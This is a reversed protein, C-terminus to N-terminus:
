GSVDVSDSVVEETWCHCDGLLGMLDLVGFFECLCCSNLLLDPFGGEDAIGEHGYQSCDLTFDVREVLASVWETTRVVRGLTPGDFDFFHNVIGSCKIAENRGDDVNLFTDRTEVKSRQADTEVANTEGALIFNVVLIVRVVFEADRVIDVARTEEDVDVSRCHLSEAVVDTLRVFCNLSHEPSKSRVVLFQALKRRSSRSRVSKFILLMTKIIASKALQLLINTTYRNLWLLKRVHRISRRLSIIISM